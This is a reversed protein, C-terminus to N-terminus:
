QSSSHLVGSPRQCLTCSPIQHPEPLIHRRNPSSGPRLSVADSQGICGSPYLHCDSCVASAGIPFVSGMRGVILSREYRRKTSTAGRHLRRGGPWQYATAVILVLVGPADSGDHWDNAKPHARDPSPCREPSYKSLRAVVLPWPVRGAAGIVSAWENLAM